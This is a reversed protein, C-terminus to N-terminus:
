GPKLPNYGLAESSAYLFKLYSKHAATVKPELAECRSLVEEDPMEDVSHLAQLLASRYKGLNAGAKVVASTVESPGEVYIVSEQHELEKQKDFAQQFLHRSNELDETRTNPFEIALELKRKADQYLEFSHRFGEAYAVYAARRPERLSKQLDVQLQMRTQSRGLFAAIAAAGGTGLAGVTAGLVAALGSDMGHTKSM